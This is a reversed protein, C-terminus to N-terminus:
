QQERLLEGLAELRSGWFESYRASWDYVEQLPAPHLEYLRRPRSTKGAPLVGRREPIAFWDTTLQLRSLARGYLRLGGHSPQRRAAGVPAGVRAGRARQPRGHRGALLPSASGFHAARYGVRSPERDVPHTGRDASRPSPRGHPM